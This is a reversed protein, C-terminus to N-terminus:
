RSATVEVDDVEGDGTRSRRPIPLLLLSLAFILAAVGALSFATRAATGHCPIDWRVSVAVLQRSLNLLALGCAARAATSASFWRIAQDAAVLDPAEARQPRHAAMSAVVLAGAIALFDLVDGGIIMGVQLGQHAYLMTTGNCVARRVVTGNVGVPEPDIALWAALVATSGAVALLRARLGRPLYDVIRRPRLSASRQDGRAVAQTELEAAVAGLLYGAVGLYVPNTAWHLHGNWFTRVFVAAVIGAAVGLRRSRRTRALYRAVVPENAPTVVLGIRAAWRGVRARSPTRLSFALPSVVIAVAVLIFGARLLVVLKYWTNSVFALASPSLMM